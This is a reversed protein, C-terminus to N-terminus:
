YLIRTKISSDLAAIQNKVELSVEENVDMVLYGIDKVSSVYQTNINAGVTSVIRNIDSLVGPVNQHINLIRHSDTDFRLDVAPFNVSGLTTGADIYRICAASVELGIYHEAERTAGGIHPTLLVTDFERLEFEFEASDETPANPFVDFAAGAIKGSELAAKLASIDVLGADSMNLLQAQHKMQAIQPEGMFTEADSLHPLHLSVFDSVELLEQLSEVQRSTGIPLRKIQDYFVINMGFAEALIGVQQGVHGYGVVGLVKERLEQADEFGREWRGKQLLCHARFSKRALAILAGITLEAVSRTGGYPANFVPVGRSRAADLDINNTAVGFCGVAM